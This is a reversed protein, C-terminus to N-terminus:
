DIKAGLEKIFYWDPYNVQFTIGHQLCFYVVARLVDYILIDHGAVIGGTKVKNYYSKIEGYVYDFTHNADIYIFDLSNDEIYDVSNLSCGKIITIRKDDVFRKSVILRHKRNDWLDILCLNEVNLQKLISEANIGKQVGIEAGKVPRGAFIEKMIIVSPRPIVSTISTISTNNHNEIVSKLNFRKYLKPSLCKLILIFTGHRIKRTKRLIFEKIQNKTPIKEM